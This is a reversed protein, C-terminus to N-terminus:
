GAWQDESCSNSDQFSVCLRLVSLRAVHNRQPTMSVSRGIVERRSRWGFGSGTMFM